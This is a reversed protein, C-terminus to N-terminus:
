LDDLAGLLVEIDDTTNFYGVSVRVTGEYERTKLFDHIYPACHYGTRVAIDFDQSLITGIERATYGAINFSVVSTHNSIDSPIYLVCERERLGDILKTVLYKKHSWIAIRGIEDIWKLSQNLSAIAIINLSAPEYRTPADMGMSLDLSNSGTGGALHPTLGGGHKSIFGGIGFSAYLTKHGAFILYDIGDRELNIDILGVSQSGDVIVKAHYKQVLSSITRVPIVLGTVNSVHNIFVYDPTHKSFLVEASKVDLQQSVPDFPLMIINIGYQDKILKLPRAIANHEFPTIYVNKFASWNLGYIIENAAITASPAFVVNNPNNVGVQKALLFRTEDVIKMAENAVQYSGRGVNVALNRQVYDVKQYVIEPKPFSTAANDLYIM